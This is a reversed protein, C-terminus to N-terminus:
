SARLEVLLDKAEVQQGAQTMVKVVTGDMPSYV